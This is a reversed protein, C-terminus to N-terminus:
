GFLNFEETTRIDRSGCIHFKGDEQLILEVNFGEVEGNAYNWVGREGLEDNVASELEEDIGEANTRTCGICFSVNLGEIDNWSAEVETLQYTQVLEALSRFPTCEAIPMYPAPGGKAAILAEYFEVFNLKGDERVYGAARVKDSKPGDGMSAILELLADGTLPTTATISM